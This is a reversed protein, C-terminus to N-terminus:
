IVVLIFLGVTARKDRFLLKHLPPRGPAHPSSESDLLDLKAPTKPALSQDM